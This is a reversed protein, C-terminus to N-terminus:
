VSFQGFEPRVDGLTFIRQAISLLPVTYFAFQLMQLALDIEAAVVRVCHLIGSSCRVLHEPRRTFVTFVQRLDAVFRSIRGIAAAM